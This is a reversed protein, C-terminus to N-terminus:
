RPTMTLDLKVGALSGWDSEDDEEHDDHFRRGIGYGTSRAAAWGPDSRARVGMMISSVGDRVLGVAEKGTEVLESLSPLSHLEETTM